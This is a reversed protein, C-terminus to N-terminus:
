YQCIHAKNTVIHSFLQKFTQLDRIEHHHHGNLQTLYAWDMQQRSLGNKGVKLEFVHVPNWLFVLDAVGAVLGAAKMKAIRISLSRQSEGPYKYQAPCGRAIAEQDTEAAFPKVENTVHFLLGRTEPFTNWAWLFCSSQLQLESLENDQM